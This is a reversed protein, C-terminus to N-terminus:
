SLEVGFGKRALDIVVFRSVGLDALRDEALAALEKLRAEYAAPSDRRAADLVRANHWVKRRSERLFRRTGARNLPALMRDLLARPRSVSRLEDDEDAVRRLLVTDIHAHDRSRREVIAVDDFHEPPIMAVLAQALDYNIHANMGLLVHRLPPADPERKTVDFAYQWPAVATGTRQWEAFADLYLEAFVVDWQSVWPGDLFGGADIEDSVARTTRLYTDHFFRRPDHAGRLEASVAEMREILESLHM